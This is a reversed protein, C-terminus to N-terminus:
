AVRARAAKHVEEWARFRIIRLSEAHTAFFAPLMFPNAPMFGRFVRATAKLAVRKQKRRGEHDGLMLAGEGGSYRAVTGFEVLHGHAGEPFRPGVVALTRMRGYRKIRVNISRKLRGTKVNRNATLNARAQRILPRSGARLAKSMVGSEVRRVMGALTAELAKDGLIKIGTTAM